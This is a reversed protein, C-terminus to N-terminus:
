QEMIQTAPPRENNNPRTMMKLIGYNGRWEDMVSTGELATDLDFPIIQQDSERM